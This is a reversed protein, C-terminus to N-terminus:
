KLPPRLAAGARPTVPVGHRQAEAMLVKAFETTVDFQPLFISRRFQWAQFTTWGSRPLSDESEGPALTVLLGDHIWDRGGTAIYDAVGIASISSWRHVRFLPLQRVRIGESNVTVKRLGIPLRWALDLVLGGLILFAIAVDFGPPLDSSSLLLLPASVCLFVLSMVGYALRNAFRPVISVSV